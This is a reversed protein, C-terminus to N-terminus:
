LVDGGGGRWNLLELDLGTKKNQKDHHLLVCLDSYKISLYDIQKKANLGIQNSMAMAARPFLFIGFRIKETPPLLNIQCLLKNKDKVM